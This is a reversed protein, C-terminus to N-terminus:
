DDAEAFTLGRPGRTIVGIVRAGTRRKRLHAFVRAAHANAVVLVFGVGNNFTRDMEARPVHGLREILGFIPPVRWSGRRVVAHCGPPLIRPLNGSLGGGTIHAM